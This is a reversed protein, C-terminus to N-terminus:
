KRKQGVDLAQRLSPGEVLEADRDRLYRDTMAETAHGALKTPNKGQRKANTLSQARQDNPLADEVKAAQCANHWQLLVTRYDAHKGKRGVFLWLAPIGHLARAEGVATKLDPSWAVILPKDTKQQRFAIGDDTLQRRHIKLVDTIRQGTLFALKMIVRLRPGAHEYIASWEEMSILRKRKAERYRKVGVCPNDDAKGWELWYGFMTRLLSVIRNTMNPTEAGDVKIKAVHRAKVQRPDDFAKFRRKLVDAAIRYQAKTAAALPEAKCHHQFTSEILLPLKGEKAAAQRRGYEALADELTTGIREWKGRKVYWYAGHKFYVCPVPHQPNFKTL